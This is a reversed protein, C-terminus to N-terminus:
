CTQAQPFSCYTHSCEFIKKVGKRVDEKLYVKSLVEPFNTDGTHPIKTKIYCFFRLVKIYIAFGNFKLLGPKVM